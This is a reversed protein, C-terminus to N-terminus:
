VDKDDLVIGHDPGHQRFHQGAKTMLGARDLPGFFAGNGCGCQALRVQHDNVQSQGFTAANPGNFADGPVAWNRV